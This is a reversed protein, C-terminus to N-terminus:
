CSCKLGGARATFRRAAESCGRPLIRGEEGKVRAKMGMSYTHIYLEVLLESFASCVGVHASRTGAPTETQFDPHFADCTM